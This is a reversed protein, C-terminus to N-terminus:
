RRMPRMASQSSIKRIANKQVEIEGAAQVTRTRLVEGVISEREVVSGNERGGGQKGDLPTSRLNPRKKKGVVVQSSKVEGFCLRMMEDDTQYSEILNLHIKPSNFLNAERRKKSM